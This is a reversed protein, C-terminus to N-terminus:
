EFKMQEDTLQFNWIINDQPHVKQDTKCIEDWSHKSNNLYVVWAKGNEPHKDDAISKGILRQVYYSYSDDTKNYISIFNADLEEGTNIAFSIYNMLTTLSLEQQKSSFTYELSKKTDPDHISVKYIM